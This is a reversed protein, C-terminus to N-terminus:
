FPASAGADAAHDTSRVPQQPSSAPVNQMVGLVQPLAQVGQHRAQTIRVRHQVASCSATPVRSGSRRLQGFVSVSRQSILVIYLVCSVIKLCAPKSSTNRACTHM